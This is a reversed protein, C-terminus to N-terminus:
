NGPRSPMNGGGFNSMDPMNGGGFNSMDPMEGGFFDSMDGGFFDSMDGSGQNDSGSMDLTGATAMDIGFLVTVTTNASLNASSSDVQVVVSYTVSSISTSQTVPSISKITGSIMGTSSAYCIATDGVALKAIDSQDVSVSVTVEGPDSYTLIRSGATVSGNNRVNTRMVEGSQTAIYQNNVICKNFTDYDALADEYASKLSDYDTKAKEVKAEYESEALEANTKAKQRTEEATLLSTEYSKQANLYTEELTSMNLQLSLLNYSLDASDNEYNETAKELDRYNTELISYLQQLIYKYQSYEDAGMRGGGGGTIEPWSVGWEEMKETLIKYNEDYVQQYYEVQYKTYYTNNAQADKYEALEEVANNYTEKASELTSKLSAVTEKYVEDAQEGSLITSDYNYKATILNEEYEIAGARYALDAERLNATIEELAEEVSDESFRVLADGANVTDGSSFLIEEIKLSTSMDDIDLTEEITGINIVGYATVADTTSAAMETFSQRINQDKISSKIKLFFAVVGIVIVIGVVAIVLVLPKKKGRQKPSDKERNEAMEKKRFAM